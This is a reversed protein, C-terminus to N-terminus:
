FFDKYKIHFGIVLTANTDPPYCVYETLCVCAEMRVAAQLRQPHHWSPDHGSLPKNIRFVQCRGYGKSLGRPRFCRLHFTLERVVGAGWSPTGQWGLGLGERCSELFNQTVLVILGLTLVIAQGLSNWGPGLGTKLQSSRTHGAAWDHRVRQLGLSQLGGTKESWPM